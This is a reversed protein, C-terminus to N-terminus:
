RALPNNILRDTQALADALRDAIAAFTKQIDRAALLFTREDDTAASLHAETECMAHTANTQITRLAAQLPDDHPSSPAPTPPVPLPQM